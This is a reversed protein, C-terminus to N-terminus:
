THADDLAAAGAETLWVRYHQRREGTQTNETWCRPDPRLEVWGLGILKALEARSPEKDRDMYEYRRMLSSRGYTDKPAPDTVRWLSCPEKAFGMLYRQRETPKTM